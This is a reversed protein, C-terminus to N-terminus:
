KKRLIAEQLWMAPYKQVAARFYLSAAPACIEPPQSNNQQVETPMANESHMDWPNDSPQGVFLRYSCLLLLPLQSQRLLQKTSPNRHM